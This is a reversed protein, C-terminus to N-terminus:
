SMKNSLKNLEVKLTERARSLTSEVAKISVDLDKSIEKQSLEDVYKMKLISSYKPKINKMALNMLLIQEKEHMKEVHDKEYAEENSQKNIYKEERYKSRLYDYFRRNAIQMLWAQINKTDKLKSITSLASHFTQSFLEEAIDKNGNTKIVLFSYVKNKYANYMKEVKQPDRTQLLHLEENSWAIILIIM